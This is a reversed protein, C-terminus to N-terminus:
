QPVLYGPPPGPLGLAEADVVGTCVGPSPSPTGATPWSGLLLRWRVAPAAVAQLTSILVMLTHSYVLKIPLGEILFCQSRHEELYTQKVAHMKQTRLHHNQHPFVTVSFVKSLSNKASKYLFLECVLSNAYQFQVVPLNKIYESLQASM